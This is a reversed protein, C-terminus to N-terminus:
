DRDNEEIPYATVFRTPGGELDVFWVSRIYATRGDPMEMRGEVVYRMGFQAEEIRAVDHQAAHHKLTSALYEWADVSFGRRLFFRAKSRGTEHTLSLLYNTLKAKPVVANNVDPIKVTGAEPEMENYLIQPPQQNSSM